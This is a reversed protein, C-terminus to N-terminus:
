FTHSLRRIPNVSGGGKSKTGGKKIKKKLIFNYEVIKKLYSKKRRCINKSNPKKSLQVVNKKLPLPTEIKKEITGLM